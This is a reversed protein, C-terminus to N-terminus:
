CKSKAIANMQSGNFYLFVREYFHAYLLCRKRPFGGKIGWKLSYVGGGVQTVLLVFLM